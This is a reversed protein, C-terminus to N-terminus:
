PQATPMRDFAPLRTFFGQVMRVVESKTLVIGFYIGMILSMTLSLASMDASAKEAVSSKGTENSAVDAQKEFTSAM